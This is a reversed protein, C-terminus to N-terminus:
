ETEEEKEVEEVYMDILRKANRAIKERVKRNGKRLYIMIDNGWKSEHMDKPVRPAYEKTAPPEEKRKRERRSPKKKMQPEPEKLEPSLEIGAEECLYVFIKTSLGATSAGYNYYEALYNFITDPKAKTVVVKSFLHSYAEKVVTKLNTKFEEGKRRLNELKETVKGDEEVLGLFRLGNFLMTANPGKIINLELIEKDIKDFSRSRILDFFNRYWAVNGYPPKLDTPTKSEKGSLSLGLENM